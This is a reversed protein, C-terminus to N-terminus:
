LPKRGEERRKRQMEIFQSSKGRISWWPIVGSVEGPFAGKPYVTESWPKYRNQPLRNSLQELSASTNLDAILAPVTPADAQITDTM